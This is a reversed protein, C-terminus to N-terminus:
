QLIKSNQGICSFIGRLATGVAKSRAGFAGKELWFRLFCGVLFYSKSKKTALSISAVGVGLSQHLCQCGGVYCLIINSYNLIQIVCLLLYNDM